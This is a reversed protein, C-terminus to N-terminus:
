IDFVVRLIKSLKESKVFNLNLSIIFNNTAQQCERSTISDIVDPKLSASQLIFIPVHKWCWITAM